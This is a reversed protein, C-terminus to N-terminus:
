GEDLSRYSFSDSEEGGPNPGYIALMRAYAPAFYRGQANAEVVVTDGPGAIVTTGDSEVHLEGELVYNVELHPHRDIWEAKDLVWESMAIGTWGEPQPSIIDRGLMPDRETLPVNPIKTVSM